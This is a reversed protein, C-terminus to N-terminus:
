MAGLLHRLESEVDDPSGVTHAVEERLLERFRARLRRVVGKIAAETMGHERGLDAFTGAGKDDVLYGKLRDFRAGDGAAEAEARMRALVAALLAEVWRRDFAHEPTEAAAPELAYREEALVADLSLIQNDGGRKQRRTHEWTSTLFNSLASLLFTRFRGRDQNAVAFSRRELLQEFFGQTLDEAAEASHGKRRIFSYLPYWYTRCLEEIARREDEPSLQEAGARLM